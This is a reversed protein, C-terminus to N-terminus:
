LPGASGASHALQMNQFCLNKCLEIIQNSPAWFGGGGAEGTMGYIKGKKNAEGPFSEIDGLLWWDKAGGAVEYQVTAYSDGARHGNYKGMLAPVFKYFQQDLAPM